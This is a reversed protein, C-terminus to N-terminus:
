KFVEKLTQDYAIEGEDEMELVEKLKKLADSNISSSVERHEIKGERELGCQFKKWDEGDKRLSVVTGTGFGRGTRGARHVYQSLSTPLDYNVVLDVDLNMGRGASDTAVIVRVSGSESRWEIVKARSSKSVRGTLERASMGVIQLYRTLRHASDASNCFILASKCSQALERAVEPKSVATVSCVQETVSGSVYHKEDNAGRVLPAADGDPAAAAQATDACGAEPATEEIVGRETRYDFIRPHNLSFVKRRAADQRTASFCMKRLPVYNPEGVGRNYAVAIDLGEKFSTSPGPPELRRRKRGTEALIGKFWGMRQGGLRDAEDLVIWRLTNAWEDGRPGEFRRKVGGPTTVVISSSLHKSTPSDLSLSINLPETFRSFDKFVQQALNTTPLVVVAVTCGGSTKLISNLIPILFCLTKGSGTSATCVLDRPNHIAHPSLLLPLLKSQLPLLVPYADRLIRYLSPDVLGEVCSSDAGDVLSSSPAAPAVTEENM